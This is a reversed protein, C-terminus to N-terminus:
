EKIKEESEDGFAAQAIVGAGFGFFLMIIYSLIQEM